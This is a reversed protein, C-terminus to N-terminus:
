DEFICVREGDAVLETMDEPCSDTVGLACYTTDGELPLLCIPTLTPYAAVLPCGEPGAPPCPTSCFLAEPEEDPAENAIGLCVPVDRPRCDGPAACRSYPGPGPGATTWCACCLWAIGVALGGPARMV